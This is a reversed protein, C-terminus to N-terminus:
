RTVEGFMVNSMATKYSPDVWKGNTLELMGRYSAGVFKGFGYTYPESYGGINQIQTFVNGDPSTFLGAQGFVHFLGDFFVVPGSERMHLGGKSEDMRAGWTKGDPSTMRFSRNTTENSANCTNDGVMTFSGNGFAVGSFSGHGSIVTPESWVEGDASTIYAPGGTNCADESAGVAVFIGNGYALGTVRRMKTGAISKWHVGDRSVRGQGMSFGAYGIGVFMNHEFALFLTSTVSGGPALITEWTKADTSRYYKTQTAAIVYGFGFAVHSDDSYQMADAVVNVENGWHTGDESMVRREDTKSIAVFVKRTCDPFQTTDFPPAPCPIVPATAGSDDANVSVTNPKATGGDALTESFEGGEYCATPALVLALVLALSGFCVLGLSRM